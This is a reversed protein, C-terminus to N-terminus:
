RFLSEDDRENSNTESMLVHLKTMTALNRTTMGDGLMRNVAEVMPSKNIGNPCWLYAVRAGVALEEPAWSKRTLPRLRASDDPTALVGLLLRSPDDARTRLPNKALAIAMDSADLVMVRSSVRLRDAVAREIRTAENGHVKGPVSFIINGSNLVTRVDLYGLAEVLARLDAM